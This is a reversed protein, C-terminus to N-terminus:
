CGPLQPTRTRCFFRNLSQMQSLELRVRSNESELSDLRKEVQPRDRLWPSLTPAEKQIQASVDSTTLRNTAIYGLLVVILAVVVSATAILASRHGGAEAVQKELTEFDKRSVLEANAKDAVQRAENVEEKRAYQQPFGALLERQERLEKEASAEVAIFRQDYHEKLAELTWVTM